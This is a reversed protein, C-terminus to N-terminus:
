ERRDYGTLSDSQRFAASGLYDSGHMYKQPTQMSHVRTPQGIIPAEPTRTVPLM